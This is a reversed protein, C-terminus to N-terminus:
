AATRRRGIFGLGALGSLLLWAAAPLPIPAPREIIYGQVWTNTDDNNLYDYLDNWRTDGGSTRYDMALYNEGNQNNPEGGWWNTYSTFDEGTVWTWTGENAADSGGLWFHSRDALVAPLLANVFTQEAASTITALHWGAGLAGVANSADTWTSYPASVFEYWHGNGGTGTTWQVAAASAAMPGALLGVAIVSALLNKSMVSAERDPKKKDGM